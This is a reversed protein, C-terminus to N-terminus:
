GDEANSVKMVEEAAYFVEDVSVGTMCHHNVPCVSFSCPSCNVPHYIARGSARGPFSAEPLTAGFITVYPVGFAAAIHTPGSDNSICLRCLSILAMMERLSAEGALMVAKEKMGHLVMESVSRDKPGGLILVKARFKKVLQDAVAAFREPIWRKASGTATGPCVGVVFDERSIGLSALRTQATDVEEETLVLYPSCKPIPINLLSVLQSFAERQHQPATKRPLARTLLFGRGDTDYGLREPIGSFTAILAAKIANQILFAMDYRERRLSAVLRFFGIFGSHIGPDEFIRIRDITPHHMLLASVAPKALLTIEAKPFHSRLAALAPTAMVGDGVWNPARVLIKKYIKIPSTNNRM